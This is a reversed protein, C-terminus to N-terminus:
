VTEQIYLYLKSDIHLGRIKAEQGQSHDQSRPEPEPPLNGSQRIMTIPINM